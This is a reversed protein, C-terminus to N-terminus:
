PLNGGTTILDWIAELKAQGIGSVNLLEEPASFAGNQRKYSLIRQALAEGIGPLEMLETETASNINIPFSVTKEAPQSNLDTSVPPKGAHLPTDPLGAIRINESASNRGIWLGLTFALFLCTITVLIPFPQKKM